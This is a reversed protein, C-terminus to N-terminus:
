PSTMREEALLEEAAELLGTAPCGKLVVVDAGTAEIERM